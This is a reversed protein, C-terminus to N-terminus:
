ASEGAETEHPEPEMILHARCGPADDSNLFRAIWESWHRNCLPLDDKTSLDSLIIAGLCGACQEDSM